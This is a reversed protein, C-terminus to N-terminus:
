PDLPDLQPWLSLNVRRAKGGHGEGALNQWSYSGDDWWRPLFLTPVDGKNSLELYCAAAFERAYRWFLAAVEQERAGDYRTYLRFGLLKGEASLGWLQRAVIKGKQDQAYVVRKNAEVANTITSYSNFRGLSLCTDFLNGMQLIKLPDTELHLALTVGQVLPYSRPFASRWCNADVGNAALKRLFALNAPHMEIDSPTARVRSRALGKLWKRNSDVDLSLLVLNLLDADLPQGACGPGALQQLRLEFCQQLRAEVAQLEERQVLEPLLEKVRKRMRRKLGTRDQLQKELSVVRERVGEAAYGADIKAKLATAERELAQPQHVIKLLSSPPAADKGQLSKASQYRGVLSGLEPCLELLAQWRPNSASDAPPFARLAGLPARLEPTLKRSFNLQMLAQRVRHPHKLAAQALIEGAYPYHCLLGGGREMEWWSDWKGAHPWLSGFVAPLVSKNPGVLLLCVAIVSRWGYGNSLEPGRARYATEVLQRLRGGIDAENWGQKQCQVGQELMVKLIEEIDWYEDEQWLRILSPLLPLLCTAILGFNAGFLPTCEALFELRKAPGLTPSIEKIKRWRSIAEAGDKSAGALAILANRVRYSDPAPDAGLIEELLPIGHAPLQPGDMSALLGWRQGAIAWEWGSQSAARKLSRVIQCRGSLEDLLLLAWKHPTDPRSRKLAAVSNEKGALEGLQNCLTELAQPDWPDYGVVDYLQAVKWEIQDMLNDFTRLHKAKSGPKTVVQIPMEDLIGLIQSLVLENWRRFHSYDELYGRLALRFAAETVSEVLNPRLIHWLGLIEPHLIGRRDGMSALAGPVGPVPCPVAECAVALQMVRVLDGHINLLELLQSPSLSMESRTALYQYLHAVDSPSGLSLARCILAPHNPWGHSRGLLFASSLNKALPLANAHDHAPAAGLLLAALTRVEELEEQDNVLATVADRSLPWARLLAAGPSASLQNTCLAEAPLLQALRRMAEPNRARSASCLLELDPAKQGMLRAMRDLARAWQARQEPSEAKTLGAESKFLTSRTARLDRPTCVLGGDQAVWMVQGFQWRPTREVWALALRKASRSTVRKRGTQRSKGRDELEAEWDM